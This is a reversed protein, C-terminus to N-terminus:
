EGGLIKAAPFLNEHAWWGINVVDIARTSRTFDRRPLLVRTEVLVTIGKIMGKAM